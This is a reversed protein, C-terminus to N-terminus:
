IHIISLFLVRAADYAPDDRTIVAGRVAGRLEELGTALVETM